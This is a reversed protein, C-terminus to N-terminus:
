GGAMAGVVLFPETGQVVADPLPADPEDQSLDRECAFFRVFARRRQTQRDRITGALRPHDTELVDLVSRTTVPGQVTVPVEGAVGAITRLHAPLVIRVTHVGDDTTEATSM